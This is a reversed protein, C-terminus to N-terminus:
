QSRSSSQEQIREMEHQKEKGAESDANSQKEVDADLAAATKDEEQRKKKAKESRWQQGKQMLLFAPGIMVAYVLALFTFAWGPNMANCMPIIAASGAASMLCRVLNVAATATAPKDRHIDILLTNTLNFSTSVGFGTFFIAIEPGSIHTAFKVTWGFVIIALSGIVHGPIVVQFRVKEIPFNELDQQKGKKIVLGLRQAHRSTSACYM